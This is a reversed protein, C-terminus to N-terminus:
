PILVQGTARFEHGPTEADMDATIELKWAGQSLGGLPATYGAEASGTLALTQDFRRNAPHRLVARTELAPLALGDRTKLRIRLAATDGSGTRDIEAQWGAADQAARRALEQNYDIGALYSRDQDEGPFTTIATWLFIGNVVFMCGFFGLFWALAHWGTLPRKAAQGEAITLEALM